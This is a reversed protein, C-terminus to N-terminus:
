NDNMRVILIGGAVAAKLTPQLVGTKTGHLVSQLVNTRENALTIRQDDDAPAAISSVATRDFGDQITRNPIRKRKEGPSATLRVM